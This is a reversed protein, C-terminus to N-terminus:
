GQKREIEFHYIKIHNKKGGQYMHYTFSKIQYQLIKHKNQLNDELKKGHM